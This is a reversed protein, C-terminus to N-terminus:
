RGRMKESYERDIRKYTEVVTRIFNKTTDCKIERDDLEKCVKVLVAGFADRTDGFMRSDVLQNPDLLRRAEALKLKAEDINKIDQNAEHEDIVIDGNSNRLGSM